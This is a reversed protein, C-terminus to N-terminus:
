SCLYPYTLCRRYGCQPRLFPCNSEEMSLRMGLGKASPRSVLNYSVTSRWSSSLSPVAEERKPYLSILLMAIILLFKGFMSCYYHVFTVIVICLVFDTCHNYYQLGARGISLQLISVASYLYQLRNHWLVTYLYKIRNHWHSTLHTDFSYREMWNRTRQESGTTQTTSTRYPM